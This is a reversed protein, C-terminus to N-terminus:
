KDIITKLRLICQNMMTFRQHQYQEKITNLLILKSYWNIRLAIQDDWKMGYTVLWDQWQQEPIYNILIFSIDYLPDALIAQDWDVLYLRKDDSLLWNKHNLDGHTVTVQKISLRHLDTQLSHLVRNLFHNVRLATPLDLLYENIMQHPQLIHGDIQQLIERLIHSSHVRQLLQVVSSGNMETTTLTRGNIWDQAIFVDGNAIRKTWILKPTIGEASLAALFPSTNRKLFIKKSANIGMYASGTNGNIASIKWGADLDLDM